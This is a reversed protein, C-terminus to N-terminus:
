EGGTDDAGELRAAAQNWAAIHGQRARGFEAEHTAAARAADPTPDPGLTWIAADATVPALYPRGTTPHRLRMLDGERRAILIAERPSTTAGDRAYLHQAITAVESEAVAPQDERVRENVLHVLRRALPMSPAGKTADSEHPTM